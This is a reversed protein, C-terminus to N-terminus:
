TDFPIVKNEKLEYGDKDDTNKAAYPLFIRLDNEVLILKSGESFMDGECLMFGRLEDYKLVWGLSYNFYQYISTKTTILACDCIGILLEEVGDGDMDHCMMEANIRRNDPYVVEFNHENNENNYYFDKYFSHGIEDKLSVSFVGNKLELDAGIETAHNKGLLIIGSNRKDEMFSLYYWVGEGSFIPTTNFNELKSYESIKGSEDFNVFRILEWLSDDESSIKTEIDTETKDSSINNIGVFILNLSVLLLVCAICILLHRISYMNIARKVNKASSYRQGPDLRKCKEAIKHLFGRIKSYDLLIKLTAGFAYIDTKFDTPLMGYQEIPAYGFTGMAETDKRIEERYIRAIDYDTLWGRYSKDIIINDPKVDRHIIKEKHLRELASLVQKSISCIRAKSIKVNREMLENLSRGEIYEEIVVTKDALGVYYIRPINPHEIKQLTKYIERKDGSIERKLFLKGETNESLIIRQRENEKLIKIDKVSEPSFM